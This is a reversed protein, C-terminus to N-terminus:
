RRSAASKSSWTSSCLRPWHVPCQATLRSGQRDKGREDGWVYVINQYKPLHRRRRKMTREMQQSRQPRSPSLVFCPQPSSLLDSASLNKSCLTVKGSPFTKKPQHQLM